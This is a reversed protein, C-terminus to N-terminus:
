GNNTESRLNSLPVPQGLKKAGNGPDIPVEVSSLKKMLRVSTCQLRQPPWRPCTNGSPGGGVPRLTVADVAHRQVELRRVGSEYTRSGAERPPGVASSTATRAVHRPGPVCRGAGASRATTAERARVRSELAELDRKEQRMEELQRQRAREIGGGRIFEVIQHLEGADLYTGHGRCVDVVAGSLRGFNVRNMMKGCRLCTPVQRGRRWMAGAPTDTCCPLRPRVTPACPRSDPPMSGRAMARPANSSCRKEWMSASFRGTARRAALRGGLGGRWPRAGNWVQRLVDSRRVDPFLLFSM